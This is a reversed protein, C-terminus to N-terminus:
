DKSITVKSIIFDRIREEERNDLPNAQKDYTALWV